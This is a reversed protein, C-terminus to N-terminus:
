GLIGKSAPHFQEITKKLHEVELHTYIQTTSIDAHGLLEQIVRLDAGGALLHSAFSHRLVHPSINESDLGCKLAAQKLLLAFNQRTMYGSASKSPFLYPGGQKNTLFMTRFPLYSAIAALAKENIIVIREKNGKGIINIYNNIRGSLVDISLNALKLSVLESVRLGSAYLLHMMALLRLNEPSKDARGYELLRRIDDVSLINPLANHYKPMDILHAPNNTTLNESILFHYYSRIASIKRAISRPAIKHESLYRIFSRIDDSTVSLPDTIKQNKLYLDFDLMDKQYAIFSNHAIGREALMMELFQELFRM